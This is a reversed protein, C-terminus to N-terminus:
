IKRGNTSMERAGMERRLELYGARKYLETLAPRSKANEVDRRIDMFVQRMETENNIKGYIHRDRAM